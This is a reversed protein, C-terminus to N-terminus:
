VLRWLWALSGSAGGEDLLRRIDATAGKIDPKATGLSSILLRVTGKKDFVYIASSHTVEYKAPDSSPKVSYAIRYRRALSALQDPTGRLGNMQPAFASTYRNLVKLTDRNPDVTVFLVRVQKALSGLGELIRAVNAMTTPCIDPCFTYGFYLLTVKGRYDAATVAKDDKARTMAFQLNPLAGIIETEHWSKDQTCGALALLLLAALPM